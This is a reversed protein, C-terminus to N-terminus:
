KKRQRQPNSQQMSMLYVSDCVMQQKTVLKNERLIIDLAMWMTALAPIGKRKFAPYYKVTCLSWM